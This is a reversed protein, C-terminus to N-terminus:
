NELNFISYAEFVTFVKSKEKGKEKAASSDCYFVRRLKKRINLLTISKVGSIM